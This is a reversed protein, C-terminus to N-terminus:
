LRTKLCKFDSTIQIFIELKTTELIKQKKEPKLFLDLHQSFPFIQRQYLLLLLRTEDLESPNWFVWVFGALNTLRQLLFLVVSLIKRLCRSSLLSYLSFHFKVLSFIVLVSAMDSTNNSCTLKVRLAITNM